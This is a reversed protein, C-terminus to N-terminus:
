MCQAQCDDLAQQVCLGDWLTDCCYSDLACVCDQVFPVECGPYANSTCCDGDHCLSADYQCALSCQTRPPSPSTEKRRSACTGM